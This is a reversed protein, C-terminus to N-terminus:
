YSHSSKAMQYICYIYSTEIQSRNNYKIYNDKKNILRFSERSQECINQDTNCLNNM